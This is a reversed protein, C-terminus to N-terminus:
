VTNSQIITRIKPDILSFREFVPQAAPKAPAVASFHREYEAVLDDSSVQQGESIAKFASMLINEGVPQELASM